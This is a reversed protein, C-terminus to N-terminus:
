DERLLKRVTALLGMAYARDDEGELAELVGDMEELMHDLAEPPTGTDRLIRALSSIFITNFTWLNALSRTVMERDEPSM